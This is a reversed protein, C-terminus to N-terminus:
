YHNLFLVFLDQAVGVHAVFALEPVETVPNVALDFPTTCKQPYDVTTAQGSEADVAILPFYEQRRQQHSFCWVRRASPEWTPGESRFSPNVVVDHAVVKAIAGETIPCVLIKWPTNDGADRTYCAIHREQPSWTPSRIFVGSPTPLVVEKPAKVSISRVVVQYSALGQKIERAMLLWKGDRNWSPSTGRAIPQEEKQMGEWAQHVIQGDREYALWRIGDTREYLSPYLCHGAATRLDLSQGDPSYYVETSQRAANIRSFVFSAPNNLGWRFMLDYADPTKSLLKPEADALSSFVLLKSADSGRTTRQFALRQGDSSWIPVHHNNDDGFLKLMLVTTMQPRAVLERLERITPFRAPEVLSRGLDINGFEGELLGQGRATAALLLALAVASCCASLLRPLRKLRHHM